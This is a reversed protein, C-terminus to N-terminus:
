AVDYLSLTISLFSHLLFLFSRLPRYLPSNPLSDEIAPSFSAPGDTKVRTCFLFATSGSILAFISLWSQM